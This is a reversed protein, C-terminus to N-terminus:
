LLAHWVDPRNVDASFLMDSLTYTRSESAIHRVGICASNELDDGVLVYASYFGGDIDLLKLMLYDLVFGLSEAGYRTPYTQYAFLNNAAAALADGGSIDNDLAGYFGTM